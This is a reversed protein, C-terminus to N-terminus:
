SRRYMNENLVTNYVREIVVSAQHHAYRGDMSLPLTDGLPHRPALRTGISRLM